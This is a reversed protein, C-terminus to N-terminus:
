PLLDAKRRRDLVNVVLNVMVQNYWQLNGLRKHWGNCSVRTAHDIGTAIHSTRKERRSEVWPNNLAEAVSM